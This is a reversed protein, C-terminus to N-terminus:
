NQTYIICNKTCEETMVYLENANNTKIYEWSIGKHSLNQQNKLHDLSFLGFENRLVKLGKIGEKKLVTGM